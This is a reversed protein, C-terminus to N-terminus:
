LRTVAAPAESGETREKCVESDSQTQDMVDSQCAMKGVAFIAHSPIGNRM